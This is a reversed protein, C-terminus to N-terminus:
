LKKPRKIIMYWGIRSLNHATTSSPIRSSSSQIRIWQCGQGLRTSNLINYSCSSLSSSYLISNVLRSCTKESETPHSWVGCSGRSVNPKRWRIGACPSREPSAIDYSSQAEESVLVLKIPKLRLRRLPQPPKSSILPQLRLVLYYTAKLECSPLSATDLATWRM